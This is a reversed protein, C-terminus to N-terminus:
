KGRLADPLGDHSGLKRPPADEWLFNNKQIEENRKPHLPYVCKNDEKTPEGVVLLRVPESTNNIFTHAIGTPVPFGVGDGPQLPYLNGDIWVDPTGEIVYAFEEENSEAHPWSTRRGPPLLEHHIGLKKLGLKKAFPSGISLLETSGSSKYYSNDPEQIESFHKICEHRSQGLISSMRVGSREKFEGGPMGWSYTYSIEKNNWIDLAIEERFTATDTPKNFGFVLSAISEPKPNSGRLEHGLLAPSNTNFNWLTLKENMSPAITSEEQHYVTGDQGTATFHISFGRGGLLPKLTLTGKFQQGEHNIGNGSYSGVISSLQSLIEKM